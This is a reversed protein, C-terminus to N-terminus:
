KNIANTNGMEYHATELGSAIHAKMREDRMVFSNALM